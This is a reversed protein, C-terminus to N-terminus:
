ICWFTVDQTELFARANTGELMAFTALMGAEICTRALVTVSRPADPVPWGNRPDLIHSYRVGDKLLFRRADGSTAVGGRKIHIEGVSRQGTAGPDDVGICWHSGDQRPGQVFLDGGLNVVFSQDTRKQLLQAIRDVAYEKGIGGLDIEMGPQLRLVPNHWSVRSWGVRALLTAVTSPTPLRDSGDFRWAARLVGSTIDFKGDSLRYCEAAYDLLRATEEDVSIPGGASTNIRHIVNDDRYRSFKREIRQAEEWAIRTLRAAPERDVADVLIECPCAMASFKGAWYGQRQELLIDSM